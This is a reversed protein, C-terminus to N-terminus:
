TAAKKQCQPNQKILEAREAELELIKLDIEVAAERFVDVQKYARLADQYFDSYFQWRDAQLELQYAKARLLNRRDDNSKIQRDLQEIRACPSLEEQAFGLSSFFFTM